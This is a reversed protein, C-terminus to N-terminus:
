KASVPPCHVRAQLDQVVQVFEAYEKAPVTHGLQDLFACSKAPELTYDDDTVKGAERWSLSFTGSPLIGAPTAPQDKEHLVLERLRAFTAADFQFGWKNELPSQFDRKAEGKPEGKGKKGPCMRVSGIPKDQSGAHALQICDQRATKAPAAKAPAALAPAGLSSAALCVAVVLGFSGKRM